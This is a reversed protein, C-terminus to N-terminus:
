GKGAASEGAEGTEAEDADDDKHAEEALKCLAAVRKNSDAQLQKINAYVPSGDANVLTLQVLQHKSKLGAFVDITVEGNKANGKYTQGETLKLTDGATLERFYVTETKGSYKLEREILDM